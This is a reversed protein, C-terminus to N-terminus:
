VTLDQAAETDSRKFARSLKDDNCLLMIKPAALVTKFFHNPFELLKNAEDISFLHPNIERKLKKEASALPKVLKILEVDGIIMLDIDSDSKQKRLAVSGYIFAVAIRESFPRLFAEIATALGSTKEALGFLEGFIPCRRNPRFYLRNGKQDIELIETAILQQIEKQLSSPSVELEGALDNQYRWLDPHIFLAGIVRQRTKPFLADLLQLNRM